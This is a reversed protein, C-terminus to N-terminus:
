KGAGQRAAQMRSQNKTVWRQHRENERTMLSDIKQVMQGNEDANALEKARELRAFREAHKKYEATAEADRGVNPADKIAQRKAERSRAKRSEAKDNAKKDVEDHRVQDQRAKALETKEDDTLKDAKQQLEEIRAKRKAAGWHRGRDRHQKLQELEKKEGDSLKGDKEKQRLENFQKTVAELPGGDSRAGGGGQAHDPKGRDKGPNGPPDNVQGSKGPEHHGKQDKPGKGEATADTAGAITVAMALVGLYTCWTRTQYPASLRSHNM